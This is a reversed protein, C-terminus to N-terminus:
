ELVFNFTNPGKATVEATFGSTAASAYRDPLHSTSVPKLPDVGPSDAKPQSWTLKEVTVQQSGAVAGDGPDFTQLTYRGSSDTYGFAAYERNTEALKTRFVVKAAEVPKGQYTVVGTVRHTAPRAKTWRDQRKTSCGGSVVACGVVAVLGYATLSVGFRQRSPRTM